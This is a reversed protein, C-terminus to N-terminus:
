CLVSYNTALYLMGLNNEPYFDFSQFSSGGMTAFESSATDNLVRIGKGDLVYLKDNFFKIYPIFGFTTANLPGFDYGMTSGAHRYVKGTNLDVRWIRFNGSEAAYLIRNQEDVAVSSLSAVTVNTAPAGDTPTNTGGGLVTRIIGTSLSVARVTVHDLFSYYDIVAVLVQDGVSDFCVMYPAMLVADVALGGDGESPKTSRKGITGAFKNVKNTTRDWARISSTGYDAIYLINSASNLATGYPNFLQNLTADRGDGFNHDGAFTSVVGTDIDVVRIVHNNSDTIYLQNDMLALHYPYDFTASTAPGNDGSYSRTGTGFTTILSKDTTNYVSIKNKNYQTVYLKNNSKVLSVANTLGSAFINTIGSTM